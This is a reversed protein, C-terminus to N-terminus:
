PAFEVQQSALVHLNVAPATQSGDLLAHQKPVHWYAGDVCTHLGATSALQSEDSNQVPLEDLQGDSRNLGFPVFYIANSVNIQCNVRHTPCLQPLSPSAQAFPTQVLSLRADCYRVGEQTIQSIAEGRGGSCHLITPAEIFKVM